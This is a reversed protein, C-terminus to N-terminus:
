HPLAPHFAQISPQDNDNLDRPSNADLTAWTASPM